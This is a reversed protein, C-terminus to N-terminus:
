AASAWRWLSTKMALTQALNQAANAVQVLELAIGFDVASRLLAFDALSHCGLTLLSDISELSFGTQKREQM